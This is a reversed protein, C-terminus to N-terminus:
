DTGGLNNSPAYRHANAQTSIAERAPTDLRALHKLQMAM